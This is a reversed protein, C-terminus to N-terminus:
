LRKTAKQNTLESCRSLYFIGAVELDVDVLVLLQRLEYGILLFSPLDQGGVQLCAHNGVNGDAGCISTHLFDSAVFHSKYWSM